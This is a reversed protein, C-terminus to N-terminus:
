NQSNDGFAYVNGSKDMVLSHRAGCKINDIEIDAKFFFDVFQPDNPKSEHM